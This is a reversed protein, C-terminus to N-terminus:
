YLQMTYTRPRSTCVTQFEYFFNYKSFFFMNTQTSKRYMNHKYFSIVNFFYEPKWTIKSKPPPRIIPLHLSLQPISNHLFIM